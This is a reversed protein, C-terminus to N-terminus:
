VEKQELWIFTLYRQLCYGEWVVAKQKNIYIINVKEFPFTCETTLKLMLKGFITKTCIKPLKRENIYNSLHHIIYDMIYDDKPLIFLKFIALAKFVIFKGEISFHFIKYNMLNMKQSVNGYQENLFTFM